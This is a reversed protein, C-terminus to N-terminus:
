LRSSLLISLTINSYVCCLSISLNFFSKIANNGGSSDVNFRGSTGLSGSNSGNSIGSGGGPFGIGGGPDLFFGNGGIGVPGLFFGNGGIGVPGFGGRGGGLFTFLGSVACSAKASANLFLLSCICFSSSVSESLSSELSPFLLDLFCELFRLCEM